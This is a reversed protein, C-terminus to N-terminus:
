SLREELRRVFESLPVGVARCVERTELIDLRRESSEYKSVFSQPQGLREALEAQTIGAEARLDRLLAQLREADAPSHRKSMRRIYSSASVAAVWFSAPSSSYGLNPYEAACRTGPLSILYGQGGTYYGLM